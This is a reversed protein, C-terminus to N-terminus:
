SLDRILVFRRDRSAHLGRTKATTMIRGVQEETYGDTDITVEREGRQVKDLILDLNTKTVKPQGALRQLKESNEIEKAVWLKVFPESVELDNAVQASQIEMQRLAERMPVGLHNKTKMAYSAMAKDLKKAKAIEKRM